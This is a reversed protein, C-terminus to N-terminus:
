DIRWFGTKWDPHNHQKYIKHSYKDLIKRSKQWEEKGLGDISDQLWNDIILIGGKKLCKVAVPVCDDRWDVPESDIIICDFYIKKEKCIKAPHNIFDAKTDIHRLNIKKSWERSSDISYCKKVKDRWWLTSYGGGYEFVTWEDVKWSGLEKLFDHTYYPFLLGNTKDIIQWKNPSINM